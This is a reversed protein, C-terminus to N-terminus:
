ARVLIETTWHVFSPPLVPELDAALPEIQSRYCSIAVDHSQRASADNVMPQLRRWEVLESAPDLWHPAWVPYGSVQCGAARAAAM